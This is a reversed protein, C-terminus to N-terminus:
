QYEARTGAATSSYTLSLCHDREGYEESPGNDQVTTTESCHL